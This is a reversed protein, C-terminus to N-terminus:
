SRSRPRTVGTPHGPSPYRALMISTKHGTRAMVWAETKNNALALTVFTARLDHVRLPIREASRQFLKRRKVGAEQLWARLDVGLHQVYMPTDLRKRKKSAPVASAPFVWQKSPCRRAM